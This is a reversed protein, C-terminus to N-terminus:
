IYKHKSGIYDVMPDIQYKIFNDEKYNSIGIKIDTNKLINSSLHTGFIRDWISFMGGFNSNQHKLDQSHHIKHSQPTVFVLEFMAPFKVYPSHTLFEYTFIIQSAIIIYNLPIKILLLPAFFIGQIFAIVLANRSFTSLNYLTDSHHVFHFMWLAKIEHYYKHSIFYIFDLLILTAILLFVNLDKEKLLPYEFHEYLIYMVSSIVLASGIDRIFRLAIIGNILNNLTQKIEYKGDKKYISYIFEVLLISYIAIRTYLVFLLITYFHITM